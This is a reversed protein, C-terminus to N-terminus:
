GGDSPRMEDTVEILDGYFMSSGHARRAGAAGAAQDASYVGISMLKM